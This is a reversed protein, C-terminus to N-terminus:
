FKQLIFLIIFLYINGLSQNSLESTLLRNLLFVFVQGSCLAKKRPRFTKFLNLLSCTQSCQKLAAWCSFSFLVSSTPDSTWGWWYPLDRWWVPQCGGCCVNRMIWVRWLEAEGIWYYFAQRLNQTFCFVQASGRPAKCTGRAKSEENPFGTQVVSVQPHSTLM